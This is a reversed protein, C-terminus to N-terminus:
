FDLWLPRVQAFRESNDRLNQIAAYKEEEAIRNKSTAGPMEDIAQLLKDIESVFSRNKKPM